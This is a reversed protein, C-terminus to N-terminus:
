QLVELSGSASCSAFRATGSALFLGIKIHQRPLIQMDVARNFTHYSGVREDPVSHDVPLFQDLLPLGDSGQLEVYAGSSTSGLTGLLSCTVRTITLRRKRGLTPLDGFCDMGACSPEVKAQYHLTQVVTAAPAVMEQVRGPVGRAALAPDGASTPSGSLALGLM